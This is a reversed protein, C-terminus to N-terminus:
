NRQDELHRHRILVGRYNQITFLVVLDKKYEIVVIDDSEWGVRVMPQGGPGSSSNTILVNGGKNPLSRGARILTVQTSWRTTAGCDRDFIVAKWKGNPSVSESLITNQCIPSHAKWWLWGCSAPIAALAMAVLITGGIVKLKRTTDM